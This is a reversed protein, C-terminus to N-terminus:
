QNLWELILYTAIISLALQLLMLITAVISLSATKIKGIEKKHTQYLLIGIIIWVFPNIMIILKSYVLISVIAILTAHGVIFSNISLHEFFNYKRFLLKTSLSLFIVSLFWYYKFYGGFVQGAQYAATDREVVDSKAAVFPTFKNVISYVFLYLAISIIVYAIPNYVGKRKGAIYQTITKKPAITLHKINYLFGNNMNTLSSIAGSVISSFEIRSVMAKEGCNPCFNEEHEHKCTICNM